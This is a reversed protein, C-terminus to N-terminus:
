DNNYVKRASHVYMRTDRKCEQSTPPPLITKLLLLATAQFINM